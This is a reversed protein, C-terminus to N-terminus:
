CGLGFLGADNPKLSGVPWTRDSSTKTVQDAAGMRLLLVAANAQRKALQEKDDEPVLPRHWISATVLEGKISASSISTIRYGQSQMQRCKLLHKAPSLGHSESSEFESSPNWVAAYRLDLNGAQMIEIFGNQQRIHDLDADAQMHSYSSYGKSISQTILSIARDAYVKSKTADTEKFVGSAISYACAADYLSDGGDKNTEIFSELRKMGEADEGLYVAVVADLNVKTSASKSLETFKALDQKAKEANGMRAHLIARFQYSGPYSAAKEIVFDFDDIAQKDRGLGSYATGRALRANVDDPKEKLKAEADALAKENREKTTQTDPANSPDVDWHIKDFYKKDDYQTM